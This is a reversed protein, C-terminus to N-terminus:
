RATRRTRGTRATKSPPPILRPPVRIGRQDTTKRPVRSEARSASGARPMPKGNQVSVMQLLQQHVRLLLDVLATREEAKFGVLSQAQMQASLKAIQDVKSLAKTKLHLQRARRDTPHPRREIWNDAEMRDLIRVVSMPEIGTLEALQIQSLGSNRGLYTLVKAESLTIGLHDAEGEFRKTYLRGIDKILYGFNRIPDPTTSM